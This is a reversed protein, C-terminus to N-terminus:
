LKAKAGAAGTQTGTGKKEYSHRRSLNDRSITAPAVRSELRTEPNAVVLSLKKGNINYRTYINYTRTYM